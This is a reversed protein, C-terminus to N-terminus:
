EKFLCHNLSNKAALVPSGLNFLYKGGELVEPILLIGFNVFVKFFM